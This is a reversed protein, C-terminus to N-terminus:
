GGHQPALASKAVGSRVRFAGHWVLVPYQAMAILVALVWHAVAYRWMLVGSRVYADRDPSFLFQMASFVKGYKHITAETGGALLLWGLPLSLLLFVVAASRRGVVGAWALALLSGALGLLFWWGALLLSALAGGGARMLETLNDTAAESVVVWHCLPLLLIAILLWRLFLRAGHYRNMVRWALAAGGLLLSVAGFLAVFRLMRELEPPWALVPAGVIDHLSELPVVMRLLLYTLLAHLVVLLPFLLTRRWGGALLWGSLWMPVGFAWLAAALLSAVGLWAFGGGMLERLNYPLASSQMAFGGLLVILLISLGWGRLGGGAPTAKPRHQRGVLSVPPEAHRGGVDSRRLFRWGRYGLWVGVTSVLWDALDVSKGPLALQGLEIFLGASVAIAVLLAIVWPRRGSSAGLSAGLMSLLFGFPVFFALKSLLSTIARYETGFYYAHFPAQALLPLRSKIFQGDGRFDWPYWFVLMLVGFWGAALLAPWWWRAGVPSKAFRQGGGALHRAVFVGLGAGVAASLLDTVDTVRSWVFLQALELLGAAALTWWFARLLSKRGSFVWLFAPPVWILVDMVLDYLRQAWDGHLGQFPLLLVRGDQWKHFIEVPSIILDLPLLNYGFLVALYLYLLREAKCAAGNALSWRGVWDLLARGWLRWLLIGLVAGITEAIIDNRSVTRQPFFLQTFEIGVSFSVAVVWVLMAIPLFRRGRDLLAMWLFTLPIFLLINAVWDARSHLGLNLYPIEHFRALAEDFPMTVYDLPVLSGYVVFLTYLLTLPLLWRPTRNLAM